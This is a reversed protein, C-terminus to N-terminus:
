KGPTGTRAARAALIARALFVGSGVGSAYLGLVQVTRVNETFTTMGIALFVVMLALNQAVTRSNM